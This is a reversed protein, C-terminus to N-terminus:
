WYGSMPRTMMHFSARIYVVLDLGFGLFLMILSKLGYKGSKPYAQIRWFLYHFPVYGYPLKPLNEKLTQELWNSDTSAAMLLNHTTEKTNAERRLKSFLVSNVASGIVIRTQHHILEPLSQISEYVHYIKPDGDIREFNEPASLLDTLMMARMFGDEVPLGDPLGIMRAMGSKMMFLQGCIATRYNSLGGGGAAIIRAILSHGNNNYSVDKVPRSTFTQLAPRNQLQAIMRELTDTEPLLIDADMFGLLDACSRSVSHIFRHMTRSKGGREFDKIEIRSSLDPELTDRMAAARQVTNDTCGNALILLRIDTNPSSFVTQKSIDEILGTIKDAENYAFVALDIVCKVENHSQASM